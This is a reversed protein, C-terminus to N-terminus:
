RFRAALAPYREALGAADNDDFPTGSPEGSLDSDDLPFDDGTASSYADPAVNVASEWNGTERDQVVSALSDPNRLANEYPSRGLSILYGRFDRFCDDSCGDQVVEAAGWIDWTYAGKDLGRRIQAFDLIAQARKQAAAKDKKKQATIAAAATAKTGIPLHVEVRVTLKKAKIITAVQTLVQRAQPTLKGDKGFTIPQGKLDIRDAREEPGTTARVDPCGDDDEFGNVTEPDNPCKDVADPFGDGDNDLDPCGDEDEFGDKDEPDNPCADKKDPIGDKDNDDDPCGDSDEFGDKDEAVDPCHDVKDPIGDQDNDEDPCGDKDQFGDKDEAVDPCADVDDLIGDHDRDSNPNLGPGFDYMVHVGVLVINADEPRLESDPQTIHVFSLMPGIAERGKHDLFDYGLQADFLGRTLSHTIAVGVDTALWLGAPSYFQGHHGDGFPRLRLGVGASNATAAGGRAFRPDSPRSGQSLWLTGLQLQVGLVNGFPLEAAASGSAGWGLEDKQYGSVAHAAAVTGHLRVPDAHADHAALLWGGLFLASYFRPLRM